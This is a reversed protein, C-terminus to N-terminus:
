KKAGDTSQLDIQLDLRALVLEMKPGFENYQCQAEKCQVLCGAVRNAKSINAMMKGLYENSELVDRIESTINKTEFALLNNIFTTELFKKVDGWSDLESQDTGVM